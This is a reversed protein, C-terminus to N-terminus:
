RLGAYACGLETIAEFAPSSEVVYCAQIEFSLSYAGAPYDRTLSLSLTRSLWYRFGLYSWTTKSTQLSQSLLMCDPRHPQRKHEERSIVWKGWSRNIYSSKRHINTPSPDSCTCQPENLENILNAEKQSNQVYRPQVSVSSVHSGASLRQEKFHRSTMAVEMQTRQFTPTINDLQRAITRLMNHTISDTGNIYNKLVRLDESIGINVASHNILFLFVTGRTL